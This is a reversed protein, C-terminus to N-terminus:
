DIINCSTLSHICSLSTYYCLKYEGVPTTTLATSSNASKCLKKLLEKQDCHLFNCYRTIPLKNLRAIPLFHLKLNHFTHDLTPLKQVTVVGFKLFAVGKIAMHYANPM